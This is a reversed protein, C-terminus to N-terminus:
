RRLIFDMPDRLPREVPSRAAYGLAVAGMPQWDDPLGLAARVVDGCFLTSSVWASGLGRTALSVLFNEVGAGMSVLFMTREAETRRPDPYDHAGDTVLCPVALVPADRLLNGRAVRKEIGQDSVGDGRLDERWQDVMAKLLLARTQPNEVLVFRWPTLHHPAPATVADAVAAMVDATSVPEDTFTRVTRRSRLVDFTGIRFLDEAPDRVLARAGAGDTETVLHQLGRVIVVPCGSTKGTSLNAAGSIEDAVAPETVSLQNGYPDLSGQLHLTVQLGAAGIAIDTQGTRWPRGATDTVIVGVRVARLERLQARIGRASGDPDEPLLVITGPETNSADVGAAAMVLGHRTRAIRLDDRRAVVRVSEDDIAQSRSAADVTRGEAKSVVKSTVVVIDGARLDVAASAILAGLDDGANIEGMGLVPLVEFPIARTKPVFIVLLTSPREPM